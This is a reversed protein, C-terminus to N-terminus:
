TRYRLDKTGPSERAIFLVAGRSAANKYYRPAVNEYNVKLRPIQSNM